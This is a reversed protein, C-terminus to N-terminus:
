DLLVCCHHGCWVNLCLNDLSRQVCAACYLLAFFLVTRSGASTCCRLIMPCKSKRSLNQCKNLLLLTKKLSPASGTPETLFFLQRAQVLRLGCDDFSCHACVLLLFSSSRAPSTSCATERPSALAVYAITLRKAGPWAGGPTVTRWFSPDGVHAM